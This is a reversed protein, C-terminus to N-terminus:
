HCQYNHSCCGAKQWLIGKWLAITMLGVALIGGFWAIQRYGKRAIPAVIAPHLQEIRGSDSDRKTRTLDARMEAAHQYRVDRDKELAKNIIHELEM